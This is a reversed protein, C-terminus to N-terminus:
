AREPFSIRSPVDLFALAIGAHDDGVAHLGKGGFGSLAASIQVSGRLSSWAAGQVDVVRELRAIAWRGDHLGGLLPQSWWQNVRDVDGTRPPESSFRADVCNKEGLTVNWRAPGDLEFKALQKAYGYGFSGDIALAIESDTVMTLVAMCRTEDDGICVDPIALMLEHYPGLSVARTFDRLQQTVRTSADEFGTRAGARVAHGLDGRSSAGALWGLSAGWWLGCLGAAAGAWSVAVEGLDLGGLTARGDRVTWLECILVHEAAAPAAIHLPGLRGLHEALPARAVPLACCVGSLTARSVWEIAAAETM